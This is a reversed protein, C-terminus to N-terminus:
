KSEVKFNNLNTKQRNTMYQQEDIRIFPKCELVSLIAEERIEDEIKRYKHAYEDVEIPQKDELIYGDLKKKRGDPLIVVYQREIKKGIVKEYNDLIFSENHGVGWGKRKKSPLFYKGTIQELNKFSEFQKRIINGDPILGLKQFKGWEARRINPISKFAIKIAEKTWKTKLKSIKDKTKQSTIKGKNAKSIKDRIEQSIIKGKNKRSLKEKTKQSTIKGKNPSLRGKNAKSIKDRIEQSIIKGKHIKSLKDRTKQLVIRGKNAKSIKDKAKQTHKNGKNPPVRGKWSKSMKDRTEQSVIKGKHQHGNAYYKRKSNIDCEFKKGCGCVCIRSEEM